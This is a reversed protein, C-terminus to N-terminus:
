CFVHVLANSGHGCISSHTFARYQTNKSYMYYQAIIENIHMNHYWKNSSSLYVIKNNNKNNTAARISVVFTHPDLTSIRNNSAELQRLQFGEVMRYYNGLEEIENGQVHPNLQSAKEEAYKVCSFVIIM